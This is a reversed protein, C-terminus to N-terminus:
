CGPARAMQALGGNLCGDTVADNGKIMFLLHEIVGRVVPFTTEGEDRKM